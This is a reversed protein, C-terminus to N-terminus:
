PDVFGYRSTVIVVDYIDIYGDCNWDFNPNYKPSGRRSGYRSTVLVVDYIEIKGNLNGDGPMVVAVPTSLVYANDTTDTEGEVPWAYVRITYNGKVTDTTNWIFTIITSAFSRLTIEKTEIETINAYLTVNFTETEPSLNRVTVNLEMLYGHGVINKNATVEIVEVDPPGIQFVIGDYVYHPIEEGFCNVLSTYQLDLIAEGPGACGFTMKAITFNGSFPWSPAMASIALWLWGHTANHSIENRIILYPWWPSYVEHCIYCVKAREWFLFFQVGYLNKVGEIKIYAEFTEGINVKTKFPMIVYPFDVYIRPLLIPELMEVKSVTRGHLMPLAISMLALSILLGVCIDKM